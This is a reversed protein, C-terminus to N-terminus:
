ALVSNRCAHPHSAATKVTVITYHNPFTKSPFAAQMYPASTGCTETTCRVCFADAADECRAVGVTLPWFRM